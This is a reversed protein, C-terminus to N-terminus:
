FYFSISKCFFSLFFGMIRTLTQPFCQFTYDTTRCLTWGGTVQISSTVLLGPSILLGGAPIFSRSELMYTLVCCHAWIFCLTLLVESFVTELMSLLQSIFIVRLYIKYQTVYSLESLLGTKLEKSSSASSASPLVANFINMNCLGSQRWLYLRGSRMSQRQGTM